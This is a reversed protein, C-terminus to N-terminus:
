GEAERDGELAFTLVAGAAILLVSIVGVFQSSARPREQAFRDGSPKDRAVAAPGDEFLSSGCGSWPSTRMNTPCSSGSRTTTSCAAKRRRLRAAPRRDLM